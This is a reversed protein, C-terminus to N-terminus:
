IIKTECEQRIPWTWFVHCLVAGGAEGKAGAGYAKNGHSKNAEVGTLDGDGRRPREGQTSPYILVNLWVRTCGPLLSM